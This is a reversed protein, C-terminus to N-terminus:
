CGGSTALLLACVLAVALAIQAGGRLHRRTTADLRTM